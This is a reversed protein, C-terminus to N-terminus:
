INKSEIYKDYGINQGFGEEVELKKDSDDVKFIDEKKNAVQELTTTPSKTLFIVWFGKTSAIKFNYHMFRGGQQTPPPPEM